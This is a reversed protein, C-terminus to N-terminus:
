ASLASVAVFCSLPSDGHTQYFIALCHSFLIFEREAQWMGHYFPATNVLSVYIYMCIHHFFPSTKSCQNNKGEKALIFTFNEQTQRENKEGEEEIKRCASYIIAQKEFINLM